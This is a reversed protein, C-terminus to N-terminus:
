PASVPPFNEEETKEWKVLQGNEFWVLTYEKKKGYAPQVSFYKWVQRPGIVQVSLPSGWQNLVDEQRMGEFFPIPGKFKYTKLYLGCGSGAIFICLIFVAAAKEM